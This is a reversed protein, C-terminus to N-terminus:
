TKLVVFSGFSGLQPLRLFSESNKEAVAFRFPRHWNLIQPLQNETPLVKGPRQRV